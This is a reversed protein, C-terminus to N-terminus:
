KSIYGKIVDNEKIEITYNPISAVEIVKRERADKICEKITNFRETTFAYKGNVYISIKRM